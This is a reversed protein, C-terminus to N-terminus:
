IGGYADEPDYVTYVSQRKKADPRAQAQPQTEANAAPEPAAPFSSQEAPPTVAFSSALPSPTVPFRSGM